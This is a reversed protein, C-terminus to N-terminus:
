MFSSIFAHVKPTFTTRDQRPMITIYAPLLSPLVCITPPDTQYIAKVKALSSATPTSVVPEDM